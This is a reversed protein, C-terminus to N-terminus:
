LNKNALMTVLFDSLSRFGAPINPNKRLNGTVADFQAEVRSGNATRYRNLLVAWRSDADKAIQALALFDICFNELVRLFDEFESATATDMKDAM